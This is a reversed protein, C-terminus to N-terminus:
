NKIELQGRSPHRDDHKQGEDNGNKDVGCVTGLTLRKTVQGGIPVSIVSKLNKALVLLLSRLGVPLGTRVAVM